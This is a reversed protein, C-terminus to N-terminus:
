VLVAIEPLEDEVNFLKTNEIYDLMRKGSGNFGRNMGMLHIGHTGVKNKRGGLVPHGPNYATVEQSEYIYEHYPHKFLNYVVWGMEEQNRSHPQSDLAPTGWEVGPPLGWMGASANAGPFLSGIKISYEHGYYSWDTRWILVANSRKKFEGWGPPLSWMIHDNDMWVEHQNIDFRPPKHRGAPYECSGQWHYEVGPIEEFPPGKVGTQYTVHFEADPELKQMLKVAVRLCRWSIEGFPGMQYRIIM